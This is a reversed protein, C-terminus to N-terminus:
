LAATLDTVWRAAAAGGPNGHYAFDAVSRRLDRDPDEDVHRRWDLDCFEAASEIQIGPIHSWFRLGHHVNKRYWPANLNVVPIDCLAAEYVVSTADAIFLGARTLVEEITAVPEINLKAWLPAMIREERPHWHGIVTFGQDELHRVMDRLQPRYHNRASRAEPCVRSADFHFTIAAIHPHCAPTVDDLPPCGAVFHDRGWREGVEPRPVIYGIVNAPHAAGTYNPHRRAAADGPFSQGSGHNMYIVRHETVVNLDRRGAVMVIDHRDLRRIQRGDSIMTGRVGDPLHRWVSHLHRRYHPLTAYLHIV